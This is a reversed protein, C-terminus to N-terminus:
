KHLKWKAIKSEAWNNKKRKASFENTPEIMYCKNNKERYNFMKHTRIRKAKWNRVENGQVISEGDVVVTRVKEDDTLDDVEIQRRVIKPKKRKVSIMEILAIAEDIHTIPETDRLLKVTSETKMKKKKKKSKAPVIDVFEISAAIKESMKSYFFDQMSKPVNLDAQHEDGDPLYRQSIPASVGIVETM